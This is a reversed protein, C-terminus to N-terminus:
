SEPLLYRVPDSGDWGDAASRVLEALGRTLDNFEMLEVIAATGAPAEFYVFRAGEDDGGSWVESYGSDRVAKLATDLDETWWGFQHVGGTGSVLFETYASPTDDLQEILEIQVDGSNSFAFTLTM